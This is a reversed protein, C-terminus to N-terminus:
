AKGAARTAVAHARRLRERSNTLHTRMAKRAAEPQRNAIAVYIADHERCVRALYAHRDERALNATNVRTRPIIMTGLYEMLDAFYRNGTAEAVHLHFAFDPKITEGGKAVSNAFTDCDRRLVKLQAETRREAALGAAESELSIRLELVALVELVTGLEAPDILFKGVTGTESVFTGIGHRTVVVGQASLRSIAERVVTRSVGHEAIIEAETPLKGGLAIKGSRIQASLRDVLQQALSGPRRLAGTGKPPSTRRTAAPVPSSM